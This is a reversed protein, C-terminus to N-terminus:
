ASLVLHSYTHALPVAAFLALLTGAVMFPGFPVASRRGSRKTAILALGAVAGLLFAAFAGVVLAQYSLAGLVGGVVGALKVDGLGMGGPRALAIALFGLGLAAAGIAARLLISADHQALAAAGLLAALVPYAPLVIANPLRYVDLDIATLAVGIANFFLLAPALPLLDRRALEATVAVFLVATVLEVLPYRVSIPAACDACRGRLWLWSLVPVNHRARVHHGCSPCASAPRVVSRGEPVRAIVVNLFSGVALGLLAITALLPFM